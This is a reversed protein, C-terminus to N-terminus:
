LHYVFYVSYSPVCKWFLKQHSFFSAHRSLLLTFGLTPILTFHRWLTLSDWSKTNETYYTKDTNHCQMSHTCFGSSVLKQKLCKQPLRLPTLRILWFFALRIIASKLASEWVLVSMTSCGSHWHTMRIFTLFSIWMGAWGTHNWKDNSYIIQMYSYHSCGPKRQM